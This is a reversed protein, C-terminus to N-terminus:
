PPVIEVSAPCDPAVARAPSARQTLALYRKLEASRLCGQLAIAAHRRRMDRRLTRLWEYAHGYRPIPGVGFTPHGLGFLPFVAAVAFAWKRSQGVRWPYNEVIGVILFDRLATEDSRGPRRKSPPGISRFGAQLGPRRGAIRSMTAYTRAEERHLEALRQGIGSRWARADSRAKEAIALEVSVGLLFAWAAVDLSPVGLDACLLDRLTRLRRAAADADFQVPTKEQPQCGSAQVQPARLVPADARDARAGDGTDSEIM